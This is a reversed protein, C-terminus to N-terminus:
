NRHCLYVWWPWNCALLTVCSLVFSPLFACLKSDRDWHGSQSWCVLRVPKVPLDSNCLLLMSLLLIQGVRPSFVWRISVRILMLEFILLEPYCKGGSFAMLVAALCFLRWLSLFIVAEWVVKLSFSLFIGVLPFSTPSSCPNNESFFGSQDWDFCIIKM